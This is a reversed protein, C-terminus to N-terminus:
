GTRRSLWARSWVAVAAQVVLIAVALVVLPAMLVHMMPVLSALFVMAMLVPVAIVPGDRGAVLEAALSAWGHQRRVESCWRVDDIAGLAAAALIRGGSLGSGVADILYARYEERRRQGDVEPVVSCCADSWALAVAVGVPRRTM